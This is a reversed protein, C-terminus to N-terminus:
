SGVDMKNYWRVVLFQEYVDPDLQKLEDLDLEDRLALHTCQAALDPHAKAFEARAFQSSPSRRIVEENDIFGQTDAGMVRALQEEIQRTVRKYKEAEATAARQAAKAKAHARVLPTVIKLDAM